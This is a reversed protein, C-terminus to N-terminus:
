KNAARSVVNWLLRRAEPDIGASPEDLLVVTPAGILAIAVSLKRKNGGSLDESLKHREHKLGLELVLRDVSPQPDKLGRLRAYYYLHEDVNM